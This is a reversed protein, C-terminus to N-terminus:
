RKVVSRTISRSVLVRLDQLSLIRGRERHAMSHCNSCLPILDREPDIITDSQETISQVHHVEIFDRAFDPGYAENFNFGCALCSIGHIKIARARNRRSREYSIHQILRKRGEADPTFYSDATGHTAEETTISGDASATERDVAFRFRSPIDSSIRYDTLYIRGKYQFPMHHKKRYFLHIEDGRNEAQVVRQDAAHSTEGEIELLDDTFVDEYQTLFTQKEKTIFLVIYPTGSPTVIGRSIAEFGKFGWIVALQPRTYEAHLQIDAFNVPM